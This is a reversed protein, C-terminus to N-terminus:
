MYLVLIGAARAARRMYVAALLHAQPMARPADNPMMPCRQAKAFPLSWSLASRCRRAVVATPSSTLPRRRCHAIVVVLFQLSVSM